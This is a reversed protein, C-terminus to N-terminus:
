KIGRYPNNIIKIYVTTITTLTTSLTSFFSITDTIDPKKSQAFVSGPQTNNTRYGISLIPIFTEGTAILWLDGLNIFPSNVPNVCSSRM